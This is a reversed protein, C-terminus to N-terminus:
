LKWKAVEYDNNYLACNELDLVINGCTSFDGTGFGYGLVGYAIAHMKKTYDWWPQECEKYTDKQEVIRDGNYFCIYDVYDEDYGGNYSAVVKTFEGKLSNCLEKADEVAKNVRIRESAERKCHRCEKNCENQNHLSLSKYYEAMWSM